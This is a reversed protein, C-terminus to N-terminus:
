SRLDKRLQSDNQPLDIPPAEIIEVTKTAGTSLSDSESRQRPEVYDALRLWAEAMTLLVGKNRPDAIKDALTQRYADCDHM